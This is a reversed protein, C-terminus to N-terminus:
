KMLSLFYFQRFVTLTISSLLKLALRLIHFQARKGFYFGLLLKSCFLLTCPKVKPFPYYYCIVSERRRLSCVDCNNDM